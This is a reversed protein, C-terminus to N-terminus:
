QDLRSFWKAYFPINIAIRPHNTENPQARHIIGSHIFLVDGAKGTIPKAFTTFDMINEENFDLKHSGPVVVTAGNMITFDTFMWLTNILFTEKVWKNNLYKLDDIHYDHLHKETCGPRVIKSNPPKVYCDKGLFHQAVNLVPNYSDLTKISPHFDGIGVFTEYFDNDMNKSKNDPDNHYDLVSQAYVSATPRYLADRMVGYGFLEIHKTLRTNDLNPM